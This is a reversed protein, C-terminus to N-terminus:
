SAAFNHSKAFTCSACQFIFSNCPISVTWYIGMHGYILLVLYINLQLDAVLGRNIMYHLGSLSNLERNYASREELCNDLSM